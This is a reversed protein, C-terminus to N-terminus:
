QMVIFARRRCVAAQHGVSKKGNDAPFLLHKKLQIIAHKGCDIRVM